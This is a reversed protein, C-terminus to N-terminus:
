GASVARGLQARRARGGALARRARVVVGGGCPDVEAGVGYAKQLLARAQAAQTRRTRDIPGPPLRLAEAERRTTAMARMSETRALGAGRATRPKYGSQM